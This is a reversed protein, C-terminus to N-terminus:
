VPRGFGLGVSNDAMGMGVSECPIRKVATFAWTRRNCSSNIRKVLPLPFRVCRVNRKQQPLVYINTLIYFLRRKNYELLNKQLALM